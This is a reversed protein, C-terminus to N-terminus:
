EIVEDARALLTPPVDLGLAKATKLNIVLELKTAQEIPFDGAKAGNLIKVVYGAALRFLDTFDAGYSALGGLEVFDRTEYMTPLRHEMAREVILKRQTSSFFPSGRVVAAQVQDHAQRMVADVTQAELNAMEFYKLELALKQAAKAEPARFPMGTSGLNIVGIRALGPLIETLIEFTKGSLEIVQTTFGTVNGGPRSLSTVLRGVPDSGGAMVIPIITTAAQAARATVTGDTLILDVRATVLAEALEALRDLNGDGWSPVLAFNKGELYGYEALSRRLAAMTHDPPASARLFGIRAFAGAQQARAAFPWAATCGLAAILERRRIHIAM